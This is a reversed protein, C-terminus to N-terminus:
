YRSFLPAPGRDHALLRAAAGFTIWLIDVMHPLSHVIPAPRSEILGQGAGVTQTCRRQATFSVTTSIEDVDDDV